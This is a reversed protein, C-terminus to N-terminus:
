RGPAHVVNCFVAGGVSETPDVSDDEDVSEPRPRVVVPKGPERPADAMDLNWLERM